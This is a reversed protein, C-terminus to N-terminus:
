RPRAIRVDIATVHKLPATTRAWQLLEPVLFRLRTAWAASHAILVLVGDDHIGAVDFHAAFGPGLRETFLRELARLDDARRLLARLSSNTAVVEGVKIPGGM